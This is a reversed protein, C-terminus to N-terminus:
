TKTTKMIEPIVCYLKGSNVSNLSDHCIGFITRNGVSNNIQRCTNSIGVFIISLINDRSSKSLYRNGNGISLLYRGFYYCYFIRKAVEQPFTNVALCPTNSIVIGSKSNTM